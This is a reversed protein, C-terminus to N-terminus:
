VGVLGVRSAAHRWLKQFPYSRPFTLVIRRVTEKVLVAVKLLRTRLTGVQADALSTDALSVRLEQFLLYAMASMLVRFQNAAYSRCSTLGIDLEDKLEKIRNESDGRGCYLQWSEMPRSELNTLLFRTNDRPERGPHVTVEAKFVIRREEKWGRAAYPSEGFVACTGDFMKTLDRAYVLSGAAKRDLVKNGPYGVLYKVGLEDLVNLLHPAAFGADLRVILEAGKFARKLRNVTRRLLAVSVRPEKATGPRLRAHFLHQESQGDITLFGLLPFLCRTGYHGNFVSFDQQGYAPDVTGDLDIIVRKANAHREALRGIVFSEFHRSMAMVTRASPRHEFRSLTPQSALDTGREGAALQLMPDKRLAPIDSCDSYGAAIAMVRQALLREDTHQVRSADRVDDFFSSFSEFLGMRSAAAALLALGGDSSADVGDFKISVSKDFAGEFLSGPSTSHRM